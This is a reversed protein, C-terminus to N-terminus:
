KRAILIKAFNRNKKSILKYFFATQQIYFGFFGLFLKIKKKIFTFLINHKRNM